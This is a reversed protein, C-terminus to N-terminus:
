LLLDFYTNPPGGGVEGKRFSTMVSLNESWKLYVWLTGQVEGNRLNLVVRDCHEEM